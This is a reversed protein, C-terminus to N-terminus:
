ARGDEMPILITIKRSLSEYQLKISKLAQELIDRKDRARATAFRDNLETFTRVQAIQYTYLESVYNYIAPFYGILFLFQERDMSMLDTHTNILQFINKRLDELRLSDINDTTIEINPM